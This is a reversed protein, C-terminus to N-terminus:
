STFVDYEDKMDKYYRYVDMSGINITKRYKVARGLISEPYERYTRTELPYKIKKIGVDSM